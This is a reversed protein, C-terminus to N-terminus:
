EDVQFTLSGLLRGKLIRAVTVTWRGVDPALDVLAPRGLAPAIRRALVPRGDRLVTLDMPGGGTMRNYVAIQLQERSPYSRGAAMSAHDDTLVMALRPEPWPFVRRAALFRQRYYPDSLSSLIVGTRVGESAAHIVRGQGVYIGVHTPRM